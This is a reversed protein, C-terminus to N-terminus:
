QITAGTASISTASYTTAQTEGAGEIWTPDSGGEVNTFYSVDMALVGAVWDDDSPDTAGVYSPITEGSIYPHSIGIGAEDVTTSGDVTHTAVTRYKDAGTTGAYLLNGANYSQSYIDTGGGKATEWGSVTYPAYTNWNRTGVGIADTGSTRYFYNRDIEIDTLDPTTASYDTCWSTSCGYTIMAWYGLENDLINNYIWIAEDASGDNENLAGMEQAGKWITNNYIVPWMLDRDGASGWRRVMIPWNRWDLGTRNANEQDVINNYIQVYDSQYFIQPYTSGGTSICINHHIRDGIEANTTDSGNRTTTLWHTGKTRICGIDDVIYNYAIENGYGYLSSSYGYEIYSATNSINYVNTGASATIDNTVNYKIEANQWTIGGINTPNEDGNSALTDHVYSYKIAWPGFNWYIGHGTGTSPSECTADGGGTIEIREFLWYKAVSTNTHDAYGGNSIVACPNTNNNNQGDIIAWEGPYSQLSSWNGSTGSKSAAIFIDSENYTGGRVYIDDGGSMGAIANKITSYVTDSGGTCSDAAPNYTSIGNTCDDDVYLNAANLTTPFILLIFVILKKM